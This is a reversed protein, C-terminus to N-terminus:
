KVTDILASDIVVGSTDIVEVVPTTDERPTITLDYGFYLAIAVLLGIIVKKVDINKM